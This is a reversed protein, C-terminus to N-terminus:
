VTEKQLHSKDKSKDKENKKKQKEEAQKGFYDKLLHNLQPEYQSAHQLGDERGSFSIFYSFFM